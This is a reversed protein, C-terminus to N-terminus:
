NRKAVSQKTEVTRADLKSGWANWDATARLPVPRGNALEAKLGEEEEADYELEHPHHMCGSKLGHAAQAHAAHARVAM